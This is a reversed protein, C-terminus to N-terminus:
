YDPDHHSRGRRRSKLPRPRQLADGANTQPPDHRNQNQRGRQLRQGPLAPGYEHQHRRGAGEQRPPSQLDGSHPM